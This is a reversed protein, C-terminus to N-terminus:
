RKKNLLKLRKIKVVNKLYRWCIQTAVNMFLPLLSLQDIWSFWYYHCVDDIHRKQDDMIVGRDKLKLLLLTSELDIKEVLYAEQGDFAEKFTAPLEQWYWFVGTACCFWLINQLSMCVFTGVSSLFYWKWVHITKFEDDTGDRHM